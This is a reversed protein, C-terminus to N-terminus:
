ITKTLIVNCRSATQNNKVFEMAKEAKETSSYLAFVASGSGTMATFECGTGSLLDVVENIQPVSVIAPEQLDNILLDAGALFAELREEQASKTDTLSDIYDKYRSEDFPKLPSSDIRKFCEPTSVGAEPKVILIDMGALSGLPTVVEGVMECLCTGGYLFFPVDAGVNVAIQGLEDESFPNGYHEQLIMLVAAADSSGGGMGSESPIRKTLNIETYPFIIKKKSNNGQLKKSLRAYFRDAAKYCLNKHPDIDSRGHCLVAVDTQRNTDFSISIDDCFDIEQMITYLKHYGNPLTGCVRLFLNVKANATTEYTDIGNM